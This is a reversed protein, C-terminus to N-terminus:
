SVGVCSSSPLMAGSHMRCPDLHMCVRCEAGALVATLLASDQVVKFRVHVCSAAHCPAVKQLSFCNGVIAWAYPSLRDLQIAMQALYSLDVERKLHWLVTSYIEMGQMIRAEAHGIQSPEFAGLCSNPMCGYKDALSQGRRASLCMCAWLM